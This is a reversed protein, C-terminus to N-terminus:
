PSIYIIKDREAKTLGNVYQTIEAIQEKSAGKLDIAIYNVSKQLHSKISALFKTKDAFSWYKYADAHGMIDITKTTGAVIVEEAVHPSEVLRSGLQKALRKLGDIETARLSEYEKRAESM